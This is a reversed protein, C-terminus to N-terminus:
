MGKLFLRAREHFPKECFRYFVRAIAICGAVSALLFVARAGGEPIRPVVFVRIRDLFIFHTLYISYSFVGIAPLWAAWPREWVRERDLFLGIAAAFGAASVARSGASAWM